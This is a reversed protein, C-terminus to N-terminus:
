ASTSKTRPKRTLLRTTVSAALVAVVAGITNMAWDNTDCARGIAPVVAQAAEIAASLLAGAALTLLPRRTALAAFFVLPFLLAVNALLEVRGLTPAAFQLTCMVEDMRRGAPVLTLAIVLLSSLGALVWLIRNGYRSARLALYGVGVCAAVILLLAVPVLAKNDMLVNTIM